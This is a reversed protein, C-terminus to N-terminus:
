RSIQEPTIDIGLVKKVGVTELLLACGMGQGCGVELASEGPSLEMLSFLYKYLAASAEIRDEPSINERISLNKWYGFNIYGGRFFPHAALDQSGYIESVLQKLAIM